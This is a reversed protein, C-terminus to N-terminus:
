TVHTFERERGRAIPGVRRRDSVRPSVSRELYGASWVALPAGYLVGPRQKPMRAAKYKVYRTTARGQTGLLTLSAELGSDEVKNRDQRKSKRKERERGPASREQTVMWGSRLTSQVLSVWTV